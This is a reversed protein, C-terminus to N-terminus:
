RQRTSRQAHRVASLNALSIAENREDNIERAVAVAEELATIAEEFRTVQGLAFGLANLAMGENLKDNTERHVAVADQYVPIVEDFRMMQGLAYGLVNLASGEGHKDNTERYIALADQHAVIADKFRGVKAESFTAGLHNFAKAQGHRDGIEGLVHAADQLVDIAEDFRRLMRFAAGLNTLTAGALHLAVVDLFSLGADQYVPIAEDARGAELLANGLNGLAHAEGYPDGIEKLIRVAEQHHTIAKDFMQALHLAIGLNTLIAAEDRREGLQRAADLALACLTIMDSHHRRWTLFGALALTMRLATSLHGDKHAAQIAATLNPYETDIWTLAHTRDDFRSGTSDAVPSLLVSADSATALYHNLLRTFAHARDDTEAHDCGRQDAFLRVLDHIRWRGYASGHDVLHARALAELGRRAVTEEMEALVATAETSIEPGPNVSLLRFLRAQDPNLHRYSLDFAVRVTATGYELEELRSGEDALDAALASLPRAPDDSLLAAIIRLALPLGGCLRAVRVADEPHDAIRMDGPRAIQLARALLGVSEETPLIILDHLRASLMGLTHRSTVIAATTGDAPLLLQVQDHTAANDIVVLIRRGQQAYAALVSAYLRARDQVGPPIHEAPVGLARLWGDLAQSPDLRRADDYGFLDVFLVGGPFWGRALAAHAAQVALETKGVGALGGVATVAVTPVGDSDPRPALPELVAQLDRDRGTFAASGAPLGSLAPTVQPPLRVTIDRGQIVATFFIGGTIENHIGEAM